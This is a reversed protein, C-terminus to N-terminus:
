DKIASRPTAHKDRDVRASERKRLSARSRNVVRGLRVRAATGQRRSVWAEDIAWRVIEVGEAVLGPLASLHRRTSGSEEVLREYKKDLITDVLCEHNWM